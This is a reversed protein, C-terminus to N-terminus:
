RPRALVLRTTGGLRYFEGDRVETAKAKMDQEWALQTEKPLDKMLRSLGFCRSWEILGDTTTTEMVATTFEEIGDVHLGAQEYAKEISSITAFRFTGPSTFDIPDIATHKRLIDRPWSFYSVREPEAWFAAVLRRNDFLANRAARLASIPDNMYMIGWRALVADFKGLNSPLEMQADHTFLELNDIGERQARQRAMDLMKKDLDFGLVSGGPSVARAARIAPEGRGTAIDLIRMGPTLQALEIMRQSVSATLRQEDDDYRKWIEEVSLVNTM